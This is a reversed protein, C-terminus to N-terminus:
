EPQTPWVITAPFNDQEPLNRLASRYATMADSMTLDSVATWDTNALLRTRTARAQSALQADSLLVYQSGLVWSGNVLAFEPTGKISNVASGTPPTISYKFLGYSELLENSPSRPFSTNPNDRRLQAASYTEPVGEILRLYM